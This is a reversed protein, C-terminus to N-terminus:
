LWLISSDFILIKELYCNIYLSAHKQKSSFSTYPQFAPLRYVTYHCVHSWNSCFVHRHKTITVDPNLEIWYIIITGLIHQTSPICSLCDRGTKLISVTQQRSVVHVCIFLYIFLHFYMCLLVLNIELTLFCESSFLILFPGWMRYLVRTTSQLFSPCKFLPVSFHSCHLCWPGDTCLVLPRLHTTANLSNYIPWNSYFLAWSLICYSIPRSLYTPVLSHFVKFELSIIKYKIRFVISFWQLNKLPLPLAM